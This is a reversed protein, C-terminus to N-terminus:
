PSPSTTRQASVMIEVRREQRTEGRRRSDVRGHPMIHIRQEAQADTLQLLRGILRRVRAARRFSLDTNYPIEGTPSAYGDLDAWASGSRFGDRVDRPLGDLLGRVTMEADGDYEESDVNFYVREARYFNPIRPRTIVLINVAYSREVTPAFPVTEGVGVTTSTTVVASAGASTQQTYSDSAASVLTVPVVLTGGHSTPEVSVVGLILQAGSGETRGEPRPRGQPEFRGDESVSFPVSVIKTATGRGTPTHALTGPRTWWAYLEFVITGSEGANVHFYAERLGAPNGPFWDDRATGGIHLTARPNFIV